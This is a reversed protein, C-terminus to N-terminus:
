AVLKGLQGLVNFLLIAAEARITMDTPRITGEPDGNMIGANKLAYVAEAAYDAISDADTFDYADMSLEVGNALLIRYIMLAMDQRTVIQGIGFLGDGIGTTIGFKEAAAIYPAYWGNQADTFSPVASADIADEGYIGVVLAKIFEERLIANNPAFEGNGYGSMVSNNTLAEIAEWAWSVGNIDNYVENIPKNSPKDSGGGVTITSGGGGGGTTPKTTTTPATFGTMASVLANNLAEVTTAGCGKIATAVSQKQVDGLQNYTSMATLGSVTAGYNDLYKRTYSELNDKPNVVANVLMLGNYAEKLEAANAYTGAFIASKAATKAADSVDTADYITKATSIDIYNGAEYFDTVKHESFKQAFAEANLMKAVEPLDALTLNDANPRIEALNAIVATAAATKGDIEDWLGSEMGLLSSNANLITEVSATTTAKVLNKFVTLTDDDNAFQVADGGVVATYVGTGIADALKFTYSYSGDSSNVLISTADIFKDADWAPTAGAAWANVDEATVGPKLLTITLDSSPYKDVKGSVTVTKADSGITVTAAFASTATLMLMAVVMVVSVLKMMKPRRM